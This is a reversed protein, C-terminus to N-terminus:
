PPFEGIYKYTCIVIDRCTHAGSGFSVSKLNGIIKFNRSKIVKIFRCVVFRLYCCDVVIASLQTPLSKIKKKIQHIFFFYGDLSIHVTLNNGCFGTSTLIGSSDIVSVIRLPLDIPAYGAVSKIFLDTFLIESRM